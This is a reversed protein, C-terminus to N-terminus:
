ITPATVVLGATIKGATFAASPVYNLDIYRKAAPPVRLMNPIRAGAKLSAAPIPGSTALTVPNVLKGDDGRENSTRVEITLTGTTPAVDEIPIVAIEMETVGNSNGSLPFGPGLDISKQSAAASTIPQQESFMNLYDLLM